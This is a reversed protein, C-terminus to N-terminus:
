KLNKKISEMLWYNGGQHSTKKINQQSRKLRGAELEFLLERNFNYWQVYLPWTPKDQWFNKPLQHLITLDKSSLMEECWSLFDVPTQTAVQGFNLHPLSNMFYYYNM